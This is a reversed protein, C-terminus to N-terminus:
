PNVKASVKQVVKDVIGSVGAASHAVKLEEKIDSVAKGVMAGKEVVEATAAFAKKWDRAKAAAIGTTILGVVGTVGPIWYNVLTAITGAAGGGPQITGDDNVGFFKALFCGSLFALPLCLSIFAFVRKM